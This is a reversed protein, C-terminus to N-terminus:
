EVTRRAVGLGSSIFGHELSINCATSQGCAM